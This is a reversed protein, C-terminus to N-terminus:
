HSGISCWGQKKRMVYIFTKLGINRNYREWFWKSFKYDRFRRLELLKLAPFSINVCGDAENIYNWKSLDVEILRLTTLSVSPSWLLKRLIANNFSLRATTSTDQVVLATIPLGYTFFNRCMSLDARSKFITERQITKDNHSHLSQLSLKMGPLWMLNWEENKFSLYEPM